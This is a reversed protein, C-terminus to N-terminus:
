TLLRSLRQNSDSSTLPVTSFESDSQEYTPRQKSISKEQNKIAADEAERREREEADKLLFDVWMDAFSQALFFSFLDSFDIM